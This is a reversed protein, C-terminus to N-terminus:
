ILLAPSELAIRLEPPERGLALLLQLLAQLAEILHRRLPLLL